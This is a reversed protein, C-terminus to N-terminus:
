HQDLAIENEYNREAVQQSGHGAEIICQSLKQNLEVLRQIHQEIRSKTRQMEVKRGRSMIDNMSGHILALTRETVEKMHLIETLVVEPTKIGWLTAQADTIGTAAAAGAETGDQEISVEQSQSM